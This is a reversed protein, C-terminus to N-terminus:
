VHGHNAGLDKLHLAVNHARIHKVGKSIAKRAIEASMADRRMPDPENTHRGIFSKRSVGLFVPFPAFNEVFAEINELITWNQGDTKGFGIGPDLFIEEIGASNAISLSKEWFRAVDSLIDIAPDMAARNHTIVIAAGHRGVVEAMRNDGQLGWIDNIISVGNNLVVDAVDAKQTDVSIPISVRSVLRQLVPLVRALEAETSIPAYGPRTSEGGVDIFDAGIAALKIGKAVHIEVTAAEYGDSFSDPTVNLIGWICYNKKM